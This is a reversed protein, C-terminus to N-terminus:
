EGRGGGSSSENSEIDELLQKHLDASSGVLEPPDTVPNQFPKEKNQISDSYESVIGLTYRRLRQQVDSPKALIIKFPIKHAEKAAEIGEHLVRVVDTKELKCEKQYERFYALHDKQTQLYKGDRFSAKM